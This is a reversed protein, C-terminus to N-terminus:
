FAIRDLDAIEDMLEDHRIKQKRIVADFADKDFPIEGSLLQDCQDMIDNYGSGDSSTFPVNVILIEGPIIHPDRGHITIEGSTGDTCVFTGEWRGNIVNFDFSHAVKDINGITVLLGRLYVRGVYQPDEGFLAEVIGVKDIICM